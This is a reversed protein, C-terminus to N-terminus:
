SRLQKARKYAAAIAQKVLETFKGKELVELAEATTGGPSTVMERLQALGKDSKAAYEVSGAVTQLVLGRASDPPLGMGVAADILSEMFLFIYAPGSGSIATAMDIYQEDTVYLEKGMAKLISSASARQEETVEETATWVTMGMGIQAPTNPMARIIAKHGLGEQLASINKGAIISLVLQDSNFKGNLEAMVDNLKQPKIALVVIDGRSVAKLNDETIYVDFDQKLQKLCEEKKDSVAIDQPAALGKNLIASLMARGMNGGGIFAIKM